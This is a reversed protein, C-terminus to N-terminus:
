RSSTSGSSARGAATRAHEGRSRACPRRPAARRPQQALRQRQPAARRQGLEGVLRERLRPRVARPGAARPARPASRPPGRARDGRRGSRRARSASRRAVRVALPQAALQHEREVARAAPPPARPRDAARAGREVLESDLGAGVSRSSSFAIRMWSSASSVGGRGALDERVTVSSGRGSGTVVFATGAAGTRGGLRHCCTAPSASRMQHVLRTFRATAIRATTSPAATLRHIDSTSAQTRLQCSPLVIRPHRDSAYGGNAQRARANARECRARRCAGSQTEPNPFRRRGPSDSRYTQQLPMRSPRDCSAGGVRAWARSRHSRCM